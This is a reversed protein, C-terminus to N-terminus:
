NRAAKKKGRPWRRRGRPKERRAAATTFTICHTDLFDLLRHSSVRFGNQKLEAQLEGLEFPQYLLVKQYLAPKSRIYCRLAEDTDAAQVAAQSASVEEEGEEEEGASEFAAGFECSSSSQSSLSSDSGDVSTAVSEQSAPLQADDDLGPPAEKTPSRSPPAPATSEHHKRQHRPGKTKAPGKRRHAGPGTTAEQQAHAGARSPKYTQSTLTRGRPAQLLPQSSQSEDESDSDLTQHTYQFIEKLKLVMQRKPLPRVGFRDLEKKLVPTEMISYQPMPTIPVKPPLDKKRNVGKPTELGEPKQAGGVSLMQALPPTEPPRQEEGDWDDWLASNLFSLRSNGPSGAGLSKEQSKRRAACSGQIPTTDLLGPSRCDCSDTAEKMRRSPSSTSLPGTRELNWHDIPIPSLPEMHWCCDDVPIPPDSDLPPSSNAQHSAVEQEDDSDGVEVVDSATTQSLFSPGPPSHKLFRRSFHARDGSIPRPALPSSHPHGGAPPRSPSKHGQRRGDSTGPSVPTLCSSPTQPPPTQPRIVSFKQAAENGERNGVSARPTHQTVADVPLGSRLSSIQTQSSCDRSRSALPTAPVLWSTDTTSGEGPSSERDCFLWPAGRSGLSGRNEPLAGEDERQLAAERRPPSHSPEQDADVDIVSFLECSRPSIELAKREELPDSSISKMKTPELELEEDSDLLLIIEDERNVQSSSKQSTSSLHDPNSQTLDISLSKEPSMLVGKNRCELMSRRETGKQHGPEKSLMLISRDRKQKSPMAPSLSTPSGVHSTGGCSRPTSLSLGSTHHPQHSGHPSGGQPPGLLFRCPHPPSVQWPALRHSVELGRERVAGSREEPESTVQSPESSEGQTSSSLQEYDGADDSYPLPGEKREARCGRSPSSCSSRGLAEQEPAEAGWAGSRQGQPPPLPCQGVKEWTTAEDRGPESPQIEEVKDWREQVQVSALLQGSVPSGGELWDADEGAGVAKEEQLLKRQTAAFEYIEEMEAENVNEQDEKHDKFKLLTEAEEEEDAWMSRLLEQFNEARSECNEAEKEEWPKGGSDTTVPVQECLHVLESVGFRHALSSLESSLGPPLGTDATYLYHLFACTAETSVDGLLVRQTPIGDEVASFGENNVYQILLPCRAYLVFKHAYLVEGSDTQFQVDSLHPNNVMAGFDAVLLGLSLSTRGGRELHKDQSPVVFGTLPLGGPVVDLGAAGESGALGGSSPWPSASLGERALDVLDQLAQHERQSASPSLGRSGCGAPPTSHLAPSRRESHEPPVLPPVPEQMLGQAPRQPVLPPVLRATYFAEMAWAGTLASGEWLFSQKCEPPPPCQGVREWGEKLIRSAPLPPTSSLEVEESLLLAVRDEIQRGTSESDQVLLLPPSVPPKKKRRKKEAEPKIRESFASELRLAPVAACPEMESRSLAMAVLLDESPAEGVKRRKRPEKKSAPGRRKLGGGHDSSVPLSSSGEPQATQLRVAQLLLQPGVEMKVACQKLHSTRSKLTLFPKGCIPCEPIQPVSPRLAKEAEDLCRNVHQERRTVNMASLNKQCIQCFFLGKEELSDDHASAGVRAFEQQLTLAVAADNEPAPPGLGFVNRAMMEEQPDKPVNEEQAAELSCETSAHRLREPDARKFQQMRELVLQATRPKSPSPVATTLCSPPPQSNSNPANERTEERSLNPSPEQQNGTQTNQATEWLVPQDPASALVGAEGNVSLAPESAQWKTVGQKKTRPAQSGSPPKKEAPGQLTKTKTATQKTRKLKRRIQTGNSSANQTKREGSVEKIGHKKVRQFFSACLEKFDEDSEDM